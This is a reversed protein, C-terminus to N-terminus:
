IRLSSDPLFPKHAAEVQPLLHSFTLLSAQPPKALCHLPSPQAQLRDSQAPLLADDKVTKTWLVRLELAPSCFQCSASAQCLVSLPFATDLVRRKLLLLQPIHSLHRSVWVPSKGVRTSSDKRPVPLFQQPSVEDRPAELGTRIM